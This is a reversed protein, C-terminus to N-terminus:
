LSHGCEQEILRLSQNIFDAEKGFRVTKRYVCLPSDVSSFVLIVDNEGSQMGGQIITIIDEGTKDTFSQIPFKNLAKWGWEGKTAVQIAYGNEHMKFTLQKSAETTKM